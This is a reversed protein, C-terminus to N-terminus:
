CRSFLQQRELYYLWHFQLIKGTSHYQALIGKWKSDMVSIAMPTPSRYPFYLHKSDAPLELYVQSLKPNVKKSLPRYAFATCYATLSTRQYFDM